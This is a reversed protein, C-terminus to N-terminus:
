KKDNAVLAQPTRPRNESKVKIKKRKLCIIVLNSQKLGAKVRKKSTLTM